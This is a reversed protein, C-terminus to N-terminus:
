LRQAVDRNVLIEANPSPLTVVDDASLDYDREDFGLFTEVDATVLVRERSVGGDGIRSSPEQKPDTDPQTKTQRPLSDNAETLTATPDDATPHKAQPDGGSQAPTEDARGGSGMADVALSEDSGPTDPPPIVSPDSQEHPPEAPPDHSRPNTETESPQPATTESPQSPTAGSVTKVVRKRHQKIDDVLADFLAREEATMGEVDTALNAADLSAAKVLKGIRREYIDEVLQTAADIEDNLRTAEPSNWPDDAREAARDREARLQTIFEGADTYFSERLQQLKDTQRERDRASQLEDVNM